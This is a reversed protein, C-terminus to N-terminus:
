RSRAEGRGQDQRAHGTRLQRVPHRRQAQLDRRRRRRPRRPRPTLAVHTVGDIAEDWAIGSKEFTPNGKLFPDILLVSGGTEVRFCSHGFWTIKM